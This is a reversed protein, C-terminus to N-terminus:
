GSPAVENRSHDRAFHAQPLQGIVRKLSRQTSWVSAPGATETSQSSAVPVSRDAEARRRTSGAQCAKRPCPPSTHPTASEVSPRTTVLPLKPRLSTHQELLGDLIITSEHLTGPVV